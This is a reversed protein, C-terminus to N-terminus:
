VFWTNKTSSRENLACQTCINASIGAGVVPLVKSGCNIRLWPLTKRAVGSGFDAAETGETCSPTGADPLGEEPDKEKPLNAVPGM